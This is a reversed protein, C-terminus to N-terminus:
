SDNESEEFKKSIEKFDAKDTKKRERKTKEITEITDKSLIGALDSYKPTKKRTLRELLDSFSEDEKKLSSLREYVSEKLSINKTGM